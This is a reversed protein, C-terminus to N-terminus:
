QLIVRKTEGAGGDTTMRVFYVGRAASTGNETAGNWEARFTGPAADQDVLSRVMRGQVDYVRLTVRAAKSLTYQLTANPGPTNSAMRLAAGVQTATGSLERTQHAASVSM